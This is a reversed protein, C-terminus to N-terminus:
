PVRVHPKPWVTSGEPEATTHSSTVDLTSYVESWPSATHVNYAGPLERRNVTTEGRPPYGLHGPEAWTLLAEAIKRAVYVKQM